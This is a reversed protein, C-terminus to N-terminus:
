SAEILQGANKGFIALRSEVFRVAAEARRLDDKARSLDAEAQQLDKTALAEREHLGRAREAVKQATDLAIRAQNESSRAAELDNQVAVLDPSEITLLPQGSHVVAGKSASVELVRGAYPTFVPTTREENFAVKGTTEGKLDLTRETVTEVTIQRMQEGTAVAVDQPRAESESTAEAQPAVAHQRDRARYIVAAAVFLAFLASAIFWVRKNGLIVSKLKDTAHIPPPSVLSLEVEPQESKAEIEHGTATTQDITEQM